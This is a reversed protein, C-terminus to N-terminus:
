FEELKRNRELSIEAPEDFANDPEATDWLERLVLRAAESSREKTFFHEDVIQSVYRSISRGSEKAAVTLKEIKVDDLYLSLQPM